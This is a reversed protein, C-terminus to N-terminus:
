RRHCRRPLLPLPTRRNPLPLKPRSRSITQKPPHNSQHMAYQSIYNKKQARSQKFYWTGLMSTFRHTCSNALTLVEFQPLCTVPPLSRISQRRPFSGLYSGWFNLLGSFSVIIVNRRDHMFVVTVVHSLSVLFSVVLLLSLLRLSNCLHYCNLLM